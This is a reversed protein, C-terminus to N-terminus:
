LGPLLGRHPRGRLVVEHRQPVVSLHPRFRLPCDPARQRCDHQRELLRPRRRRRAARRLGGRPHRQEDDPSRPPRRLHRRRPSARHQGQLLLRGASCQRAVRAARRGQRDAIDCGQLLQFQGVGTCRDSTSTGGDYWIYLKLIAFFCQLVM